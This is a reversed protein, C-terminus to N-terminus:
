RAKREEKPTSALVRITGSERRREPPWYFWAYATADTGKGTFSPRNPLVYVDPPYRRLFDARSEGELFNLRLLMVVHDAIELCKVIFQEALHYPPNTIAVDFHREVEATLFDGHYDAACEARLEVTTWYVHDSPVARAIAGDGACPELWTGMPLERAELLRKVCWEPTSYNDFPRRAGSRNTASM